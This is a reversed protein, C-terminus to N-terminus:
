ASSPIPTELEYLSLGCTLLIAILFQRGSFLLPGCLILLILISSFSQSAHFGFLPKCPIDNMLSFM